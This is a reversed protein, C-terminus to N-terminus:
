EENTNAFVDNVAVGFGALLVSSTIEDKEFEGHVEYYGDSFEVLHNTNLDLYDDESWYGQYPFLQAIAWLPEGKRSTSRKQLLAM